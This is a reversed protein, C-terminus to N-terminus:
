HMIYRSYADWFGDDMRKNNLFYFHLSQETINRVWYDTYKEIIEEIKSEDAESEETPNFVIVNSGQVLPESPSHLPTSFAIRWFNENRSISQVEQASLGSITFSELSDFLDIGGYNIPVPGFRQRDLYRMNAAFEFGLDQADTIFERAQAIAWDEMRGRQDTRIYSRVKEIMAEDEFDPPMMEEEIRFFAWGNGSSVVSSLEGKRLSYIVARDSSSNIDRDIEYFYRSGMDGGRDAYDDQSQTRAAEEFTTVGSKISELVRGADRESSNITIRSMHISKFMDQNNRAFEHIESDPYDTVKFTVFEFSRMRKTMDAIFSSESGPVLLGFFDNYFSNKVLEDQTQRWIVTRSTESMQRYLASSFRGNEQFQPLLAVARDVASEPVSYNSRKMVNLVATHVAAFEFSQRWVQYLVQFNDLTYGQSQYYRLAQDYYQSFMNGAVWAIPEKNYHGFVFDGGSRVNEPVIAPVLVFSVIVLILVLLTGIFIAPNQKFRRSLESATSDKEKVTINKDKQAM